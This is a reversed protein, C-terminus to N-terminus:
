SKAQHQPHHLHYLHYHVLRRTYFSLISIHLKWCIDYITHHKGIATSAKRFSGGVTTFDPKLVGDIAEFICRRLYKVLQKKAEGLDTYHGVARLDVVVVFIRGKGPGDLYNQGIDLM